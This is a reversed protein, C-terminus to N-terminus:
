AWRPLSPLRASPASNILPKLRVFGQSNENGDDELTALTGSELGFRCFDAFSMVSASYRTARAFTTLRALMQIVFEKM